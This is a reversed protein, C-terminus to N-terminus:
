GNCLELEQALDESTERVTTMDEEATTYRQTALALKVEPTPNASKSLSDGISSLSM